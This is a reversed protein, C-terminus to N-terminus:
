TFTAKVSEHISRVQMAPLWLPYCLSKAIATRVENLEAGFSRALVINAVHRFGNQWNGFPSSHPQDDVIVRLNSELHARRSAMQPLLIKKLRTIPLHRLQGTTRRFDFYAQAGM